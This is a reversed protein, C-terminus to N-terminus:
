DGERGSLRVSICVRSEWERASDRFPCEGGENSPRIGPSPRGFVAAPGTLCEEKGLILEDDDDSVSTASELKTSSGDLMSLASLGRTEECVARLLWLSGDFLPRGITRLWVSERTEEPCSRPVIVSVEPSGRLERLRGCNVGGDDLDVDPLGEGDGVDEHLGIGVM